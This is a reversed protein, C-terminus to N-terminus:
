LQFNKKYLERLRVVDEEPLPEGSASACERAQQANRMGPITTSVAPHSNCFKIAAHVLSKVPGKVLFGLKEVKSVEQALAEGAFLRGRVDGEPFSTDAKIKGALLGRRLPVRAIIGIGKEMALPFVKEAPWQVLINYEIQVADSREDELATLAEEETNISVGYFRIKGERKQKELFEFAEGKKFVDVTPNHLQYFDIVDTRLRRLSTTLTDSLHAPSFDRDPPMGLRKTGGKTSLIVQQRKEKLARGLLEESHGMGYAPSTDIFNVGLDLAAHIASISEDDRMPGFHGAHVMTGIGIESVKLGARGLTRYQM